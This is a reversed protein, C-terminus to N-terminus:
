DAIGIEGATWVSGLGLGVSVSSKVVWVMRNEDWHVINRMGGLKVGAIPGMGADYEGSGGQSYMALAVPQRVGTRSFDGQYKTLPETASTINTSPLQQEVVYVDFGQLRGIRRDSISGNAESTYDRNMLRSSYMLVNRIHSDIFLRRGETPIFDADMQAALTGADQEFRDAGTSSIPYADTLSTVGAREVVNGGFHVDTVAAARAALALLRWARNNIIEAVKRACERAIPAVADWPPIEADEWDIKVAKVLMRDLGVNYKSNVLTDGEIFSGKVHHQADEPSSGFIPFDHSTSGVALQKMPIMANDFLYNHRKFAELMTPELATYTLSRQDSGVGLPMAVNVSM